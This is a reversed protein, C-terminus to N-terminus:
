LYNGTFHEKQITINAKSFRYCGKGDQLFKHRQASLKIRGVGPVNYIYEPVKIVRTDYENNYTGNGTGGLRKCVEQWGEDHGNGLYPKLMCVIHAIEHPVTDNIMHEPNQRVAERNIFVSVTNTNRDLIALGVPSRSRKGMRLAYMQKNTKFVLHFPLEPLQYTMVAEEWVKRARDILKLEHATASM